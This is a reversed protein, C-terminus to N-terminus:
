LSELTVFVYATVPILELFTMWTENASWSVHDRIDEDQNLRQIKGLKNLLQQSLPM